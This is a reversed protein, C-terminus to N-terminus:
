RVEFTGFALALDRPDSAPAFSRAAEVAVRMESKGIVSAPLVFVLEFATEGPHIEAAPLAIGDVAVHVPLAGGRLLEEPCAGRLYLKMGAAGPAGIRLSARRPM